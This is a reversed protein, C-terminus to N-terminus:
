RWWMLVPNMDLTGSADDKAREDLEKRIKEKKSL